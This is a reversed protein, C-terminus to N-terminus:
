VDLLNVAPLVKGAPARHGHRQKRQGQQGGLPRPGGEAVHQGHQQQAGDQAPQGFQPFIRDYGLAM